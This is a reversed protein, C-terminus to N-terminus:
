ERCKEGCINQEPKFIVYHFLVALLQFILGVSCVGTWGFQKWALTSLFSGLSGGTFYSVMFVTNLRNRIEGRLAQIRAQNSVQGGQTGLDLLLIGIILGILKEGILIFCIFSLFSLIVSIGVTFRPSRQDSIRGVLPAALAGVVGVLGFMGAEQTGLHYVPTELLFVLSTWFASFAGFMLAGNVAAEKLVPESKMLGKLSRILSWYPIKSAPLSRPLFKRTLVALLLIMGAAALYVIRWGFASGIIGSFTRSLLIGILVGSLVTGLIRGREEPNALHAAFPIILQPIITFFGIGLSSVLVMSMNTSLAMLLLSASTLVLFLVITSRREKIDGLPVFCFLGLAYGVQTLTAAMGATAQSVKFYEAIESLLPQIYYLNAVAIGAAAAMLLILPRNLAFEEKDPKSLM